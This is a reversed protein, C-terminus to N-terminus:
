LSAWSYFPSTCKKPACEHIGPDIHFILILKCLPRFFEVSQKFVFLTHQLLLLIMHKAECHITRTAASPQMYSMDLSRHVCLLRDHSSKFPPPPHTLAIKVTLLVQKTSKLCQFSRSPILAKVMNPGLITLLKPPERIQDIYMPPAGGGGDRNQDIYM